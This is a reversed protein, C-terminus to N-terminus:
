VAASVWVTITPTYGAIFQAVLEKLDDMLGLSEGHVENLRDRNYAEAARAVMRTLTSDERLVDETMGSCMEQAYHMSLLSENRDDTTKALHYLAVYATNLFPEDPPDCGDLWQCETTSPEAAAGIQLEPVCQQTALGQILKDFDSLLMDRTPYVSYHAAILPKAVECGATTQNERIALGEPLREAAETVHCPADKLHLPGLEEPRIQHSRLHGPVFFIAGHSSLHERRLVWQQGGDRIALVLDRPESSGKASARVPAKFRHLAVEPLVEESRHQQAPRPEERHAAPDLLANAHAKLM